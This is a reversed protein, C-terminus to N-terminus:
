LSAWGTKGISREIFRRVVPDDAREMEELTGEFVIMGDHLMAIRDGVKWASIIDHTVVVSTISLKQKLECILENISEAAIPDLGTTPEDFLVIEPDMALARALGVRKKMGGSLEAPMLDGNGPLGVMRLREAVRKRMEAKSMRTHEQLGLAINEEVTMSDFLASSQFVMGFRKRLKFLQRDNFKAINEGDIYVDGGDPKMLGIIHKLLVTKGCGSSGVVVVTEGRDVRLNVDKLVPVRNFGKRLHSIEIMSLNRRRGM